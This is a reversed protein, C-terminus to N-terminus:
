DNEQTAIQALVAAAMSMGFGATVPTFSGYGQCNLNNQCQDSKKVLENSWVAQIHFKTKLNRSFGHHRKLNKRIKALLPDYQTDRLDTLQINLPNIKGGASGSIILSKQHKKAWVILGTKIHGNDICDLIYDVSLPILQNLNDAQIFDEILHLQCDPNIEKIRQAMAHVKAQGLTSSLAPLQRNINSETLHDLDILTMEGIASRALAEAAWSGVGGLGIVCIHSTKFCALGATGFLQSIGSFRRENM